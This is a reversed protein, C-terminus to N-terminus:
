DVQRSIVSKRLCSRLRMGLMTYAKALKNSLGIANWLLLVLAVMVRFNWLGVAFSNSEIKRLRRHRTKWILSAYVRDHM